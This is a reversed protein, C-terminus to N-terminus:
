PSSWWCTVEKDYIVSIQTPPTSFVMVQLLLLSHIIGWDVKITKTMSHSEDLQPGAAWSVVIQSTDSATEGSSVPFWLIILFYFCSFITELLSINNSKGCLLWELTWGPVWMWMKREERWIESLCGGVTKHLTQQLGEQRWSGQGAWLWTKVPLVPRYKARSWSVHSSSQNWSYLCWTISHPIEM